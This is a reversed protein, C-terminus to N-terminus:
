PWIELELGLRWHIGGAVPQYQPPAILRARRTVGSVPEPWDFWGAGAAIDMDYWTRWVTLQDSSLWYSASVRSLAATYRRRTQDIGADVVSRVINPADAVVYSDALPRQPFPAAPWVSM